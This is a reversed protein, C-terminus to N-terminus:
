RGLSESEIRGDPAIHVVLTFPQRQAAPQNLSVLGSMFRVDSIRVTAAADPGVLSRAWPFRSFGLVIQGVPTRAAREVSATWNNPLRRNIRWPAAGARPALLNLDALEYANSMRAIIRWGFPSMTPLAAM